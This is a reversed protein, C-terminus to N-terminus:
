AVAKLENLLWLRVKRWDRVVTRPTVKLTEATEKVSLGAFYRLQVLQEYRPNIEALKSLAQHIALEEDALLVPRNAIEHLSADMPLTNNAGRKRALHRRAQDTLVFRMARAAVAFFHRRDNWVVENLLLRLYAQHVLGAADNRAGRGARRLIGRAIKKLEGYLISWLMNQAEHSGDQWAHLLVTIEGLNGPATMSNSVPVDNM